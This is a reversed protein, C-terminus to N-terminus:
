SVGLVTLLGGLVSSLLGFATAWRQGSTLRPPRDELSDRGWAGRHIRWGLVAMLVAVGCWLLLLGTTFPTM